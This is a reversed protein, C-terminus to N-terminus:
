NAIPLFIFIRAADWIAGSHFTMRVSQYLFLADAMNRKTIGQQQQQQQNSFLRNPWLAVTSSVCGQM